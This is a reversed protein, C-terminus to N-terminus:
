LHMWWHVNKSKNRCLETIEIQAKEVILSCPMKTYTSNISQWSINFHQTKSIIRLLIVFQM